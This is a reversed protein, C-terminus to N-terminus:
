PYLHFGSCEAVEKPDACSEWIEREVDSSALHVALVDARRQVDVDVVLTVDPAPVARHKQVRRGTDVAQV